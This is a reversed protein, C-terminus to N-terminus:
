KILPLSGTPIVIQSPELKMEPDLFFDYPKDGLGHAWLFLQVGEITPLLVVGPEEIKPIVLAEMRFSDSIFESAGMCKIQILNNRALGHLAHDTLLGLKENEAFDMASAYVSDPIYLTMKFRDEGLGLHLDKGTYYQRFLTYVLYHTRIQYTSLSSILNLYTVGRDDRSVGSRSSALVGGFYEASLEDECFYGESLLKSLVRPPVQGEQEIKVGVRRIAKGFIRKLNELGKEAYSELETGLYEATPGLLKTLIEKGGLLALGTGLATGPDVM